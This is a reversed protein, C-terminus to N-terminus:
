TVHPSSPLDKVTSRYRMRDFKSLVGKKSQTFREVYGESQPHHFTTATRNIGLATCMEQIMKSKIDLGQDFHIQGQVGFHAVIDKVLVKLMMTPKQSTIVLSRDMKVFLGRRCTHIQQLQRVCTAFKLVQLAVRGLPAVWITHASPAPPPPREKFACLVFCDWFSVNRTSLCWYVVVFVVPCNRRSEKSHVSTPIM